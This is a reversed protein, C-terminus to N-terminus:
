FCNAEQVCSELSLYEEIAARAAMYGVCVLAHYGKSRMNEIFNLQHQTAKNKGFKLEIFLGHFPGRPIAVCIDSVGPKLGMHKLIAGMIRNTKRDNPVSFAYPEIDPRTRIWCFLRIQELSEGGMKLRLSRAWTSIKIYEFEDISVTDAM